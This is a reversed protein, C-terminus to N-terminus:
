VVSSSLITIVSSEGDVAPPNRYTFDIISSGRVFHVFVKPDRRSFEGVEAEAEEETARMLQVDHVRQTSTNSSFRTLLHSLFTESLSGPSPLDMPNFGHTVRVIVFCSLTVRGM